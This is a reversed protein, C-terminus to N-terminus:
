PALAVQYNNGTAHCPPQLTSGSLKETALVSHKFSPNREYIQKPCRMAYCREQLANSSYQTALLALFITPGLFGRLCAGGRINEQLAEIQVICNDTSCRSRECSTRGTKVRGKRRKTGARRRGGRSSFHETTYLLPCM